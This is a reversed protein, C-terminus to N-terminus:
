VGPAACFTDTVEVAVPPVGKESTVVPRGAPTLTVGEVNVPEALLVAVAKEM